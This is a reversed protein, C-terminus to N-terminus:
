GLRRLTKGALSRADADPDYGGAPATAPAGPKKPLDARRIRPAGRRGANAIQGSAVAHRLHDVSYGSELAAEALTLTAAGAAAPVLALVALTLAATRLM